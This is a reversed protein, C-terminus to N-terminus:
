NYLQTITHSSLTEFTRLDNRSKRQTSVRIISAILVETVNAVKVLSCPTVDWFVALTLDSINEEPSPECGGGTHTIGEPHSFNYVNHCFTSTGHHADDCKGYVENTPTFPATHTPLRM